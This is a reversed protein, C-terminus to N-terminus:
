PMPFHDHDPPKALDRLEQETPAKAALLAASTVQGCTACDIGGDLRQRVDNSDCHLCRGGAEIEQAIQRSRQIRYFVGFTGLLVAILAGILKIM